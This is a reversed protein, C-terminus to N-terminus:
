KIVVTVAIANRITNVFNISSNCYKDGRQPCAQCMGVKYLM